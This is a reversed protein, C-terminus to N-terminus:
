RLGSGYLERLRRLSVWELDFDGNEVRHLLAMGRAWQTRGYDGCYPHFDGPGEGVLCGASLGHIRSGSRDGGSIVQQEYSFRHSHGVVTSSHLTRCLQAGLAMASMAKGAGNLAYHAFTVGNISFDQRPHDGSYLVVDSYHRDLMLSDIHLLGALAFDREVTRRMKDEHNGCIFVTRMPWRKRAKMWPAFIVENARIGSELDAKFTHGVSCLQGKTQFALSDFSFHDGVNVCVDARAEDLM